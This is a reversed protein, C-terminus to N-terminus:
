AMLGRFWIRSFRPPESIIHCVPTTIRWGGRAESFLAARLAKVNSAENHRVM